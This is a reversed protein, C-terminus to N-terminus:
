NVIKLGNYIYLALNQVVKDNTSLLKVFKYMSPHSCYYSDMYKKRLPILKPDRDLSLCFIFNMVWKM